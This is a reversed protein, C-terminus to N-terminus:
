RPCELDGKGDGSSCPPASPQEAPEDTMAKIWILRESRRPRTPLKGQMWQFSSLLNAILAV